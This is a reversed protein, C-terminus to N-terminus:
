GYNMDEWVTVVVVDPEEDMISAVASISRATLAYEFTMNMTPERTSPIEGPEWRVVKGKVIAEAAEDPSVNRQRGREHEAHYSFRVSGANVSAKIWRM